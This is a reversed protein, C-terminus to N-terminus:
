NPSIRVTVTTCLCCHANMWNAVRCAASTAASFDKLLNITLPRLSLTFHPLDWAALPFSFSFSPVVSEPILSSGTGPSGPARGGGRGCLFFGRGVVEVQGRTTRRGHHVNGQWRRRADRGRRGWTKPWVHEVWHSGRGEHPSWSWDVVRRLVGLPHSRMGPLVAAGLVTDGSPARRFLSRKFGWYICRPIFM